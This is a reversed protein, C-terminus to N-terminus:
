IINELTCIFSHCVEKCQLVESWKWIQMWIHSIQYAEIIYHNPQEIIFNETTIYQNKQYMSTYNVPIYTNM